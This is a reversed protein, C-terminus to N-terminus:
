YAIEEIEGFEFSLGLDRGAEEGELRGDLRAPSVGRECLSRYVCYRCQNRDDTLPQDGEELQGIEAALEALYSADMEYERTTYPFAEPEDPFAAYWYIMQVQEASIAEGGNLHAGARVLLYPYVRSQLRDALQQRAPKRRSTKWDVIAARGGRQVAVLDYRAMIRRAGLPATLVLESYQKEPLDAPRHKLYNTWWLLLEEDGTAETLRDAPVGSVHQHVLRHFAAGKQLHLEHELVPEAEVAPWALRLVHKLQFRRRCDVFDQLSDQSFAFDAPLRV